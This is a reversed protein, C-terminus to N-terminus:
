KIKVEYIDEFVQFIISMYNRKNKYYDESKNKSFLVDTLFHNVLTLFYFPKNKKLQNYKQM